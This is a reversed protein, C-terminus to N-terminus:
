VRSFYLSCDVFGFLLVCIMLSVEKEVDSCVKLLAVLKLVNSSVRYLGMVLIPVNNKFTKGSDYMLFSSYIMTFFSLAILLSNVFRFCKDVTVVLDSLSIYLNRRSKVRGWLLSKLHKLNNRWLKQTIKPKSFCLIEECIKLNIERYSIKINWVFLGFITHFLLLYYHVLLIASMAISIEPSSSIQLYFNGATMLLDMVFINLLWNFNKRPHVTTLLEKMNNMITAIDASNYLLMGHCLVCAVYAGIINCVAFTDTMLDGKLFFVIDKSQYSYLVMLLTMTALSWLYLLRSICFGGSESKVYPAVGSMRFIFLLKSWQFPEM